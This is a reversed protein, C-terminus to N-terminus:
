CDRRHKILQSERLFKESCKQCKFQRIGDHSSLHDKYRKEHQFLKGCVKCKIIEPNELYECLRRM